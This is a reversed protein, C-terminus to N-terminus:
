SAAAIQDALEQAADAASGLQGALFQSTISDVIDNLTGANEGAYRPTATKLAEFVSPLYPINVLIEENSFNAESVPPKGFELACKLDAEPTAIYAAFKAAAEKQTSSAAVANGWGGLDGAGGPTATFAYNGKVASEDSEFSSGVSGNFAPLLVVTGAAFEAPTSAFTGTLVSAPSAAVQAALSEYARTAIDVDIPNPQSNENEFAPGGLSHYVSNFNAMGQTKDGMVSTPFIGEAQLEPDNELIPLLDLLEEQSTPFDVGLRDLIDTRYFYGMVASNYPVAFQEGAFQYQNALTQAVGDLAGEDAVPELFGNAAFQGTWQFAITLLDYTATGAAFSTQYKDLMGDYPIATLNVEIGTEETFGPILAEICGQFTPSQLTVVSIAADGRDGTVPAGGGASCATLGLAPAVLAVTAALARRHNNLM